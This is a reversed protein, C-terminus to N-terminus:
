CTAPVVPVAVQTRPAPQSSGILVAPDDAPGINAFVTAAPLQLGAIPVPDVSAIVVGAANTAAMRVSDVYRVGPVRTAVAEIDQSRVDIGLPWGGGGAAPGTLLGDNSGPTPLGGTLPSLFVQVATRVQQAVISPVQGPMVEIGVSVWIPQYVPGRAHVETTVLRRPDLWSCISDLFQRDPTPADPHLPDSRPIVLLTVMGPWSLGSDPRDPNFLPLVEVRGLDVGPARRTLDRFDDATVLRDRHRLWRTIAAEGDAVSEGSGAGWTPVPNSVTYAGSLAVSRNVAGIPVQGQLGGGYSYRALVTAGLPVRAGSLGSGTTIRGSAWDAQYVTEDPGAAYIDDIARWEQRKGDLDQVTLVFGGFRDDALVPTNAVTFIQFPTGTGVGLREELIPVAQVIPVANVGVWSLRGTPRQNAAAIALASNTGVAADTAEGSCGCDCPAPNTATDPTPLLGDGASGTTGAPSAAATGTDPQSAPAPEPPLRLRIWSILRATVDADDVRPPYDGTGEEEPDYAWVLLKAAEPLTVSVIGPAQLVPDAYSTELRTYNAPGIGFGPGALGTVDTEPAAIEFILGPDVSAGPTTAPPLVRGDIQTAPYVGVSLTQGGIENRVTELDANKPAILAIWLSRDITGNVADGLDVVPDPRGTSPPELAVPQYFTLTDTDATLFTQYILQYRSKADDDLATQPQKYYVAATVPQVALTSMTQFPVQGARMETGVPVTLPKIPGKENTITVLGVGPSPPVLSIGLMTLFKLRNAEPIRNSRYLLNETLFAFLDVITIGPDSANLNTWEPTHVPIRAKAEAVLQDFSRDDLVPVPITM